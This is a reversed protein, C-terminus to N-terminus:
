RGRARSYEALDLATPVDVAVLGIIPDLSDVFPSRAMMAPQGRVTPSCDPGSEHVTCVHLLGLAHLVEHGVFARFAGAGPACARDVQALRTGVLHQGAGDTACDRSEWPRLIVDAGTADETEAFSPGVAALRALAEAIDPRDRAPWDASVYVRVPPLTPDHQTPDCGSVALGLALLLTVVAALAVVLLAAVTSRGSQGSSPPAPPAEPAPPTLLSSAIVPWKLTGPADRRTLAALRDLGVHLAKGVRGSQVRAPLLGNIISGLLLAYLVAEAPHMVLWRALSALTSLIMTTM